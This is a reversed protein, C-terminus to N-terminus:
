AAAEQRDAALKWLQACSRALHSRRRPAPPEGRQRQRTVRSEERLRVLVPLGVASALAGDDIDRGLGARVVVGCAPAQWGLESVLARTALAGSVTAACVVLGLDVQGGLWRPAETAERPLDVVVLGGTRRAAAVVATLAPLPIRLAQGRASSLFRVGHAQPLGDLIAATSLRGSVTALDPWRPGSVGEAGLTIDIGGDWPDAGLLVPQHGSRAASVALAA